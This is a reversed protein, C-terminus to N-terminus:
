LWAWHFRTSLPVGWHCPPMLYRTPMPLASCLGRWVLWTFLSHSTYFHPLSEPFPASPDGSTTICCWSERGTGEWHDM